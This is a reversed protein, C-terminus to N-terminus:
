YKIEIARKVGKYSGASKLCYNLADCNPDIYDAGLPCGSPTTTSVELSCGPSSPDCCKALTNYHAEGLDVNDLLDSHEPIPPSSTSSTYLDYVAVEIGSDAAYFATVSYGIKSMMRMEQILLASIGLGISLIFSTILVVFLLSIGKQKKNRTKQKKNKTHSM